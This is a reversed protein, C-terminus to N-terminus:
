IPKNIKAMARLIISKPMFRIIFATFQNKRTDYIIRRNANLGKIAISVASEATPLKRSFLHSKEVSAIKAFNSQTPGPCFVSVTISSDKVEEAVAESFRLVYAKTAYYVSMYPGPAISALSAINLIKGKNRETMNKLFLKTLLTLTVMNLIMENKEDDYSTGIFEGSTGFGANNILVDVTLKQQKIKEYLEKASDPHSLDQTVEIVNRSTLLRIKNAAEALKLTNSAVMIIDYDYASYHKAFAFGIGSSAGTILVAQHASSSKEKDNM